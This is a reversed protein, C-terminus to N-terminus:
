AFHIIVSWNFAVYVYRLTQWFGSEVLDHQSRPLSYWQLYLVVIWCAGSLVKLIQARDTFCVLELAFPFLSIHWNTLCKYMIIGVQLIVNLAKLGLALVWTDEVLRDSDPCSM